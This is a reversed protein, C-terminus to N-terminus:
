FLKLIVRELYKVKCYFNFWCFYYKYNHFFNRKNYLLNYIDELIRTLIKEDIPECMMHKFALIFTFYKFIFQLIITQYSQFFLADISMIKLKQVKKRKGNEVHSFTSNLDIWLKCIIFKIHPLVYLVDWLFM